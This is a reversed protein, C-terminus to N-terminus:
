LGQQKRLPLRALPQLRRPGPRSPRTRLDPQQELMPRLAAAVACRAGSRVDGVARLGDLFGDVVAGAACAVADLAARRDGRHVNHEGPRADLVFAHVDPHADHGSACGRFSQQENLAAEFPLM